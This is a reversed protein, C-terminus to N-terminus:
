VRDDGDNRCAKLLFGFGLLVGGICDKLPFRLVLCHIGALFGRSHRPLPVVWDRKYVYSVMELSDRSCWDSIDSTQSTSLYAAWFWVILANWSTGATETRMVNAIVPCYIMSISGSMMWKSRWALISFM